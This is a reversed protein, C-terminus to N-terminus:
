NSKHHRNNGNHHNSGYGRHKESSDENASYKKIMDYIQKMTMNRCDETTITQDYQVLETYARYKGVSLGSEHAQSALDSNASHCHHKHQGYGKCSQIGEILEDKKDSVVTFDISDNEKLYLIFEQNELLDDIAETYKKGTLDIQKLLKEGDENYASAKVVNDLRNLALEVSPNIDISIYSVATNFFGYSGVLIVAILISCATIYKYLHKFSKDRKIHEQHLFSIVDQKLNDEASITDFANKIKNM